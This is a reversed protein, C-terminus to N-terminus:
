RSLRATEWETHSLPLWKWSLAPHSFISELPLLLLESQWWTLKNIWKISDNVNVTEHFLLCGNQGTRASNFYFAIKLIKKETMTSKKRSWKFTGGIGHHWITKPWQSAFWHALYFSVILNYVFAFCHCGFHCLKFHLEAFCQQESRTTGCTHMQDWFFGQSHSHHYVIVQQNCIHSCTCYILQTLIASQLEGLHQAVKPTFFM